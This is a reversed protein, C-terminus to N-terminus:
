DTNRNFIYLREEYSKSGFLVNDYDMLINNSTGMVRMICYLSLFAVYLKRNNDISFCRIMDAWLIWYSYTFLTALRRSLEHFESFGLVFFFVIILSNIFITNEERLEKLKDFYCFVLGGTILRELYGISLKTSEDMIETYSEIKTETLEGVLGLSTILKLVIPINFIFIANLVIFIALYGWKNIKIKLIFYMPFYLVATLHFTMALACLLFYPIPRRQSIYTLANVFILIAITNRMLNISMILGEFVIFLILGLPINDIRDKFFRLLLFLNIATTAVVLSQFTGFINKCILNLVIFGPEFSGNTLSYEVIDDVKCKDFYAVYSTWDTSLYGRFGFFIFFVTVSVMSTVTKKQEDEASAHIFALIGFFLILIVYPITYIM